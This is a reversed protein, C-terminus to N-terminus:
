GRWQQYTEETLHVGPMTDSTIKGGNRIIEKCFENIKNQDAVNEFYGGDACKSKWFLVPNEMAGKWKKVTAMGHSAVKESSAIGGEQKLKEITQKAATKEKTTKATALKQQEVAIKEEAKKRSQMMGIRRLNEWRGMENLMIKREEALDDLPPKIAGKIQNTVTVLPEISREKEKKIEREADCLLNMATKYIELQADNQIKAPRKRIQELVLDINFESEESWRVEKYTPLSMEGSGNVFQLKLPNMKILIKSKQNRPLNWLISM